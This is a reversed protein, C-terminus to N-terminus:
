ENRSINQFYGGSTIRIFGPPYQASEGAFLGAAGASGGANLVSLLGRANGEGGAAWVAGLGSVPGDM